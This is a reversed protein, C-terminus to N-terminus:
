NLLINGVEIEGTKKVEGGDRYETSNKRMGQQFLTWNQIKVGLNLM